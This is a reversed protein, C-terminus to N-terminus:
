KMSIQKLYKKCKEKDKREEREIRAKTKYIIRIVDFWDLSITKTFAGTGRDRLLLEVSLAQGPENTIVSLLREGYAVVDKERLSDFKVTKKM